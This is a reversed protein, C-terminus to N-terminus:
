RENLVRKKGDIWEMRPRRRLRVGKVDYGLIRKWGRWKDM